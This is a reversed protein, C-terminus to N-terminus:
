WEIMGGQVVPEARLEIPLKKKKEAKILRFKDQQERAYYAIALAMVMDDHCGEQAEAKGKENRVFTIMERITDLDNIWETHERVVTVLGAIMIPRTVATTRVGYRDTLKKTIKDEQQRYFMNEYGLRQLEKIPYTSFNSEIALLAYNYYKGLCYMQRAYVDEDFQHRLVAVQEGTRNNLVQGVFYDSGDGSTDGGIVYLDIDNVDKYIQIYGKPDYVFEIDTIQLGDYAYVFYGRTKPSDLEGIRNNLKNADFITKGYVGWEGLCYVTYYYPDTEKYSELLKIYEEDLFRNDKYTTKLFTARGTDILKTKIWHNIDIPNLTLVIQKKSNGGRLRIDLQNFDSEQVESAEEIWVDTLEGSEFTTSKLKEVDDLGAFIIENGNFKNKIRLDSDNIKFLETLNWESIVRKLLAFTSDRNSKATARVVLLNMKQNLMKYIYRQATFVSKGSGAGGYLVLYRDINDLYPIYPKNFVKLSIDITINGNM